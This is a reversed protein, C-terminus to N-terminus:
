WDLRKTKKESAVTSVVNGRDGFGGWNSAGLFRVRYLLSSPAITAFEDYVLWRSTFNFRTNNTELNVPLTLPLVPTTGRNVIIDLEQGDGLIDVINPTITPTSGFGETIVGQVLVIDGDRNLTRHDTSLWWSTEDTQASATNMGLNQCAVVELDCYNVISIPTAIEEGIVDEYFKKSSKARAYLFTINKNITKEGFILHTNDLDVNIGQSGLKNMPQTEFTINLDTFNLLRPNIPTSINRDFNFSWDMTIAGEASTSFDAPVQVVKLEAPAINTPSTPFKNQARGRTIINPTTTSNYEILDYTLALANNPIASLYRYNLILNVNKAYCSNVFNTLKLGNYGSATFTGYLNFSMNEDINNLYLNSALTNMYVFTNNADDQSPRAGQSIADLNFSYPYFQLDFDRYIKPAVPHTHNSSIMCGHRRIVGEINVDGSNIICDPTALFGRSTNHHRMSATDWDASTWNSDRLAFIYDGVQNIKNLSSINNATNTGNNINMSLNIDNTDVCGSIDNGSIPTRNWLLTSTASLSKNFTQYYGNVPNDNRYNTAVTDFRYNYDAALSIPTAVPEITSDSILNINTNITDNSQNSDILKTAFAEPRISFNDRSCLIKGYYTRLCAYCGQGGASCQSTCNTDAPYNDTYITQFCSEDDRSLCNQTVFGGSPSILFWTRFGTNKIALDYKLGTIPSSTANNFKIFMPASINSDPNYCSVNTDRNLIGANYVEVEVTADSVQTTVYDAGYSFIRADFARNSVQTYLNYPQGTSLSAEDSTVNFIGWAPFYGGGDPCISAAGFSKSFHIPGSGYDVSYEIWLKFSTDISSQMRETNFTLYRAQYSDIIGGPGDPVKGADTGIYMGFGAINERYTQNLGTPGAPKYSRRENEALGTSNSIYHLQQTDDIKYSINVDHLAFDGEKSLISVKTTLPTGYAGLTTKIKNDESPIIFGGMDVTYDYCINPQYLATSFAMMSPTIYDNNSSLAIYITGIYKDIDRYSTIITSVDYTDVDIGNTNRMDNNNGPDRDINALIADFINNSNTAGPMKDGTDGPLRKMVMRDYRSNSGGYIEEGEGAFTSFSAHVDGASPLRFGSIKVEQTSPIKTYGSYISVNTADGTLDDQKYIVVMSWGGYNGTGSQRGENATLNAVTVTHKGSALNKSQILSTIDTYAAYYGGASGHATDYYFTTAQLPTYSNDNDVRILLRNGDTNELNISSNFTINKFSYTTGDVFARRQPYSKRNNISGQWFLGAWLIGQGNLQDYNTPLTFNSSSSNWTAAGIGTNGDIDIYKAMYNNDNYADSGQCTGTYTDRSNTICESTNGLITYGGIINRTVPPNILVFPQNGSSYITSVNISVLATARQGLSDTITYTFTDNGGGLPTYTFAGNSSIIVTGNTPATYSTVKISLGSDNSMVNDILDAGATAPYIDPVAKLKPMVVTINFSKSNAGDKDSVMLTVTSTGVATPSGTIMKTANDFSLGNPLGSVIYTVIDGDAETVYTSLDLTFPTELDITMDPINAIVPPTPVSVTYTFDINLNLTTSYRREFAIVITQNAAVAIEPSSKNITEAQSSWLDAGCGDKIFLSNSTKGSNVSSNTQITGAVTPTFNYYFITHAPVTVNTFSDTASIATGELNPIVDGPCTELLYQKFDFNIEYEDLDSGTENVYIYVTDGAQLKIASVNHSQATHDYYYQSGNPSSGIKLHYKHNNPSSTTINLIGPTNVTFYYYDSPDGNMNDGSLCTNVDGTAGNLATIINGPLSNNINNDDLTCDCGHCPKIITIVVNDSSITGSSDTVTLTITHTGVSFDNKNFSSNTSLTTGGEKWRYSLNTGTSGSGNLTLTAGSLVNQDAGADAVPPAIVEITFNDSDSGDKDTATVTVSYTGVTTPTGSIIGTVGDVALGNPLGTAIYNITDGDLETVFTSTDLTFTGVMSASQDPITSFVPPTPVSVTYTFDIDLTLNTKYRREFAIVITQNAAVAIEPSSKTISNYQNSWLDAGCGDKIFLSNSYKGGNVSSNTQITGAVTPTFYYYYTSNGYVTVGNFSDTASAGTGDLAPIKDGPCTEVLSAKFDFSIDFNLKNRNNSENVRIYYWKNKEVTFTKSDDSSSPGNHINNNNCSTGIRLQHNWYGGKPKNNKQRVTIVGGIKTRFKFYRAYKKIDEGTTYQKYGDSLSDHINVVKEGSCSYDAGYVFLSSFVLVILLKMLYILNKM